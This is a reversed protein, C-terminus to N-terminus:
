LSNRPKRVIHDRTFFSIQDFARAPSWGWPLSRVASLEPMDLATIICLDTEYSPQAAQACSKLVYEARARLRDRWGIDSPDYLDITWYGNNFKAQFEKRLDEFGTLAIVHPPSKFRPSLTIETLLNMGGKRDPDEGKRLPLKIDLILLDFMTGSLKERADIGSEVVVISDASIGPIAVLLSVIDRVKEPADDVVVVLVKM